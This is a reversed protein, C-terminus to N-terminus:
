LEEADILHYMKKKREEFMEFIMNGTVKVYEPMLMTKMDDNDFNEFDIRGEPFNGM